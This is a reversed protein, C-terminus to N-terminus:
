KTFTITCRSPARMGTRIKDFSESVQQSVTRATQSFSKFGSEGVKFGDAVQASVSQAHSSMSDLSANFQTEGARAGSADIRVSLGTVDM